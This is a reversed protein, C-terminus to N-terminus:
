RATMPLSWYHHLMERSGSSEGYFEGFSSYRKIISPCFLGFLGSAIAFAFAAFYFLYWTFPLHLSIEHRQGFMSFELPSKLQILVKAAIPVIL